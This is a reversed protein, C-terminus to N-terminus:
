YIYHLDKDGDTMYHYIFGFLVHYHDNEIFGYLSLPVLLLALSKPACCFCRYNFVFTGLSLEDQKESVIAPSLAVLFNM